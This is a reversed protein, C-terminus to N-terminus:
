RYFPCLLVMPRGSGNSSCLLYYMDICQTLYFHTRQKFVFKLAIAMRIFFAFTFLFACVWKLKSMGDRKLLNVPHHYTTFCLCRSCLSCGVLEAGVTGEAAVAEGRRSGPSPAPHTPCSFSASKKEGWGLRGGGGQLRSILALLAWIGSVGVM